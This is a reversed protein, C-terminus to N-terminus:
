SFSLFNFKGSKANKSSFLLRCSDLQNQEPISTQPNYRVKLMKSTQGGYCGNMGSSNAAKRTNRMEREFSLLDVKVKEALKELVPM